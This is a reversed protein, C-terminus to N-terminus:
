INQGSQSMSARGLGKLGIYSHILIGIFLILYFVSGIFNVIINVAQDRMSKEVM